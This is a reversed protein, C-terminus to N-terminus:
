AGSVFPVIEIKDVKLDRLEEAIEQNLIEIALADYGDAAADLVLDTEVVFVVQVSSEARIALRRHRVHPNDCLAM